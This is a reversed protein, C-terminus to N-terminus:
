IATANSRKSSRLEFAGKRHLSTRVGISRVVFPHERSHDREFGGLVHSSRKSEPISGNSCLLSRAVLAVREFGCVFAASVCITRVSCRVCWSRM